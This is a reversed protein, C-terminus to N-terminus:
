SHCNKKEVVDEHVSTGKESKQLLLLAKQTWIKEPHDYQEYIQFVQVFVYLLSSSEPM